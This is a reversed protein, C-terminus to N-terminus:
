STILYQRVVNAFTWVEYFTNYLPVPAVRIVNPPRFDCVIGQSELHALLDRPREHVLLSVACGRREPERPTIIELRGDGIRDLLYVLYGTLLESKARLAPMTAQDFLALSAKLPAMALIPPNSIQWGDAGPRPVFQRETDMQFRTAPDNGWWGALRPLTTNQGHKEHVFCGAVAGPGSNLYKYSCWVAFDVDWDHLQLPVNGAAHALDFGAVCGHRHALATLAPIDFWQGTVFNVGNFLLLAIQSGYQDILAAVDEMRITHEGPRPQVAVVGEVPDFGHHRVQSQVAYLDSPFAPEDIFIKFRGPAPRYFTAMMLHLNVTLSNMMVVEGPQAGVLHAGIERFQEHYPFWPDRGRFHGEVGLAAWDDLEQEILGRGARPQLGLSHGCLYVLTSGEPRCPLHFADRFRRLPDEADLWRAFHSEPQFDM